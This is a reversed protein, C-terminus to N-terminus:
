KENRNKWYDHWEEELNKNIIQPTEGVKTEGVFSPYVPDPYYSAKTNLCIEMRDYLLHIIHAVDEFYLSKYGYTPKSKWDKTRLIASYSVPVNSLSWIHMEAAVQEIHHDTIQSSTKVNIVTDEAKGKPTQRCKCVLDIPTAIKVDEWIAPVEIHYIEEVREDIFAMVSAVHKQYEFVADSIFKPDPILNVKMLQDTFMAEAKDRELGWDIKGHEKIYVLSEHVLTGFEATTQVYADTERKNYMDIMRNRWRDIQKYGPDGRFTSAEIAGTLGSYYAFPDPRIYIRRGRYNIRYLVLDSKGTLDKVKEVEKIM